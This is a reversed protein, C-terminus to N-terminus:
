SAPRPLTRAALVACVIALPIEPGVAMAVATTQDAGRTATTVDFWADVTLLTATVAAALCRRRDRRDLLIGTTILGLAEMGDFGVWATSWHSATTSSPLGAALVFLWPILALGSGILGPGVWRLGGRRRASPQLDGATESSASAPRVSTIM